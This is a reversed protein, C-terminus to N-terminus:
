RPDEPLLALLFRGPLWGKPPFLDAALDATVRNEQVIYVDHLPPGEPHLALVGYGPRQRRFTRWFAPEEEGPAVLFARFDDAYRQARRALAAAFGRDGGAASLFLESGGSPGHERITRWAAYSAAWQFSTSAIPERAQIAPLASVFHSSPGNFAPRM